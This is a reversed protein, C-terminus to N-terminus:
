ILLNAADGFDDIGEAEGLFADSSSFTFTGTSRQRGSRGLDTESPNLCCQMRVGTGSDGFSPRLREYSPIIGSFRPKFLNGDRLM